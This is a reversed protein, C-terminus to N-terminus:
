ETKFRDTQEKLKSALNDLESVGAGIEEFSAVQEEIAANIQEVSLANEQTTKSIENMAKTMEESIEFQRKSSDYINEIKETTQEIAKLINDFQINTDNSKEVSIKVLEKSEVISLDAKDAKEQIETILLSIKSTAEKSEEALKRVEDAVVAFGKGQEGARAAEIAANLALLNTQEAIGTIMSVIEGIRESSYKLEKISDYVNQSSKEVRINSEVVEKINKAGLTASELINKSTQVTHEAEKSIVESNNTVEEIGATTEEVMSSNNQLGGSVTNIEKAISEIGENAQQMVSSLEQSSQALTYADDKVQVILQYIKEIFINFWKSLTGTEDKSNVQLRQTLDGEGESIDKLMDNTKNLPKTILISIYMGFLLSAIIVVIVVIGMQILSKTVTNKVLKINDKHMEEILPQINHVANRYQGILGATAKLGIEKDITVVQEFKNKYTDILSNLNSKTEVNYNSNNVVAKFNSVTGELKEVYKIDKRLLYDKESRRAQLMLIELEQNQPLKEINGEVKHVADRLEGVIGYDKFGRIRLKEVVQLFDNHYQQTLGTLQELKKLEEPNNQIEEYKKVLQIKEALDKFSSEFEDIYSSKGTKFFDLNAQERLLFDKENKRMELVLQYVSNNDLLLPIKKNILNTTVSYSIGGLVLMFIIIGLFGSRIKTRIKLDNFKRKM